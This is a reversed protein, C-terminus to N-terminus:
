EVKVSYPVAKDFHVEQMLSKDSEFIFYRTNASGSKCILGRINELREFSIREDAFVLVQAQKGRKRM